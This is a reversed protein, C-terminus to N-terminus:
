EQNVISDLQVLGFGVQFFGFDFIALYQLFLLIYM